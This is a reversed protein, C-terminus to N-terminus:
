RLFKYSLKILFVNTPFIDFTDILQDTSRQRFPSRTALDFVDLDDDGLRSQSWVLFITSGPRYEWRLVTNTQFSNISFDHQKPYAGIPTLTDRDQLLSFDHYQGRAAFLQGYLQISLTPSLTIDSRLTLDMSRTDREGFIPVYFRGLEDYPDMTALIADFEGGDDFARFAEVEDPAEQSTEGIAWGDAIPAFAENSAWETVGDERGFGVQASLNVRSSVNWEADLGIEYTRGGDGFFEVETNPELQWKRRTDTTISFEVNMERPRAHPGLGRTETVDYGGFLYDSRAGLEIEHFGRTQWDSRLFFGFGNDLRERYSLGDSFFLRATGRRFPGFPAGGNIQHTFGAFLNTYNNRRLRGLDNPNYDDSIVTLGSAFNWVGRVKDFGATLAFGSEPDLGMGPEMRHTASIQGDFKYKNNKFRLDWDAGGTVSRRPDDVSREYFTLM